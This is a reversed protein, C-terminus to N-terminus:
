GKQNNAQESRQADSEKIVVSVHPSMTLQHVAILGSEHGPLQKFFAQAPANRDSAEFILRLFALQGSFFGRNLSALMHQEVARGLVRCSVVFNDITATDGHQRAVMAGITGANGFSDRYSAGILIGGNQLHAELEQQSYRRGSMNFQNTREFLQALRDLSGPDAQFLTLEIQLAKLFDEFSRSSSALQKRKQTNRYDLTRITDAETIRPREFYPLSALLTPYESLRKPVQVITVEPCAQRLKICEADSDDIMVMSDLSLGLEESISLLNESKEDWNAKICALDDRSLPFDGNELLQFVEHENNKSNIALIIGTDALAKIHSLVQWFVRGEFSDPRFKIGQVGDEGLVGKWLTNDLDLVLLKKRRTFIASLQRALMEAVRNAGEPSFPNDSALYDKLSLCRTIGYSNLVHHIPLVQLGADNCLLTLARNADDVFSHRTFSDSLSFSQTLGPYLSFFTSVIVTSSTQQAFEQCLRARQELAADFIDRQAPTPATSHQACMKELDFIVVCARKPNASLRTVRQSLNGEIQYPPAISITPEIGLLRCFYRLPEILGQLTFECIITVDTNVLNQYLEPFNSPFHSNWDILELLSPNTNAALFESGVTPGTTRHKM